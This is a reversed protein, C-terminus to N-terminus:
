SLVDLGTTRPHMHMRMAKGVHRRAKVYNVDANKVGVALFTDEGQSSTEPSWAISSYIEYDITLQHGVVDLSIPM